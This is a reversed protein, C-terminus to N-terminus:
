LAASAGLQPYMGCAPSMVFPAAHWSPRQAGYAAPEVRRSATQNLWAGAPISRLASLRAPPGVSRMAPNHWLPPSSSAWDREPTGPLGPTVESRNSGSYQQEGSHHYLPSCRKAKLARNKLTPHRMTGDSDRRGRTIVAPTTASTSGPCRTRAPGDAARRAPTSGVSSPRTSCSAIREAM